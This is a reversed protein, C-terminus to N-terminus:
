LVGKPGLLSSQALAVTNVTFESSFQVVIREPVVVPAVSLVTPPINHFPNVPADLSSTHYLKKAVAGFWWIVTVGFVNPSKTISRLDPAQSPVFIAQASSTNVPESVM